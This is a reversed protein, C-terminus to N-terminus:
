CRERAQITRGNATTGCATNRRLEEYSRAAPSAQLLLREAEKRLQEAAAADGHVELEDARRSLQRAAARLHFEVSGVKLLDVRNGLGGLVLLAIGGVVLAASGAGNTSFFTAVGGVALVSVGLFAAIWRLGRLSSPEGNTATSSGVKAPGTNTVQRDNWTHTAHDLRDPWDRTVAVDARRCSRAPLQSRLARDAPEDHV